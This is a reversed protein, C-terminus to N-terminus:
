TSTNAMKCVTLMQPDNVTDDDTMLVYYRCLMVNKDNLCTCPAKIFDRPRINSKRISTVVQCSEGIEVGNVMYRYRYVKPPKAIFDDNM